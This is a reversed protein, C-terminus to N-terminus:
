GCLYITLNGLKWSLHGLSWAVALCTLCISLSVKYESWTFTKYLGAALRYKYLVPIGGKSLGDTMLHMIVGLSIGVGVNQLISACLPIRSFIVPLHTVVLLSSLVPLWFVIDHSAGRHIDKNFGNGIMEVTDPLCSGAVAIVGIIPNATIAMTM